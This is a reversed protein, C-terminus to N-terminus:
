QDRWIDLIFEESNGNDSKAIITQNYNSVGEVNIWAEATFQSFNYDESIGCDIYDSSGNFNLSYNDSVLVSASGNESTEEVWTAGYIVMMEM